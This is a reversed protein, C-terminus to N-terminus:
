RGSPRRGEILDRGDYTAVMARIREDIDPRNPPNWFMPLSALFKWVSDMGYQRAIGQMPAMPNPQSPPIAFGPIQGGPYLVLGDVRSGFARTFRLAVGAGGRTGASCRRAGGLASWAFRAVGSSGRILLRNGLGSVAADYYDSAAVFEDRASPHFELRM